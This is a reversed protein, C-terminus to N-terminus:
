VFRGRWSAVLEWARGDDLKIVVMPLHAAMYTRIVPFAKADTGDGKGTAKLWEASVEFYGQNTM